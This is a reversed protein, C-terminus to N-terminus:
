LTELAEALMGHLYTSIGPLAPRFNVGDLWTPKPFVTVYNDAIPEPIAGLRLSQRRELTSYVYLALERLTCPAGHSLTHRGTLGHALLAHLGAVADDVHHYERLQHGGSMEFPRNEQLAKLMQGLFMHEAPLGGGYLTHMQVHAVDDGQAAREAIMQGLESKSAIYPNIQDVLSELATGFTIVRLGTERAADLIQIPLQLNIRQHDKSPLAPDLLGAVILVVSGAPANNLYRAADSSAGMQWWNAYVSRDPAVTSNAPLSSLIARGLRGRSGIVYTIGQSTPAREM